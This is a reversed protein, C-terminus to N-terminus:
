PSQRKPDVALLTVLAFAEDSLPNKMKICFTVLAVFLKPHVDGPSKSPQPLFRWTARM